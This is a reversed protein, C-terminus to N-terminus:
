ILLNRGTMEAPKELGLLYLITPAVDALIGLQLEKPEFDKKIAVFPVHNTSHKTDVEGTRINILEECNGHDSTILVVGDKSMVYDVIEGVAKDAANMAAVAADLVGTHAVMDPAAINVVVFDFDQKDLREKLKSVILFTSMEPIEDYTAVHKPSPVEVQEEGEFVIKKGGDFFYTVHPFKESEAIRLQTLGNESLTKGLSDTVKEQPFAIHTPFGQKYDTFGVFYLDEIKKREFGKFEDDEFAKTIQIARDPRFNFMIIADGKQVKAVNGEHDPLVYAKMYEDTESKKYADKIAKKYDNIVIGEGKTILNYALQIRDWREDRDMAYYRGIFSAIRGIKKRGLENDLDNLLELGATPSSDRGDLFPHIFLKNPDLDSKSVLEILKYLHAKSSHVLGNGLLGIIHVNGQNKKAHKIANNIEENEMFEGSKIKNEIRPLDQFLVKGTGLTMHGVESNGDAGDPLGVNRGSAQLYCHPYKPWYSDLNPTDALMVANGPGPPAVGVGDIVVLVVPKPRKFFEAM